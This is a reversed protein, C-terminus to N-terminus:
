WLIRKEFCLPSATIFGVKHAVNNSKVYAVLAWGLNKISQRQFVMALSLAFNNSNVREWEGIREEEVGGGAGRGREGKAEKWKLPIKRM